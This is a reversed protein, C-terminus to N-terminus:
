FELSQMDSPNYKELKNFQIQKVDLIVAEPLILSPNDPSFKYPTMWVFYDIGSDALVNVMNSDNWWLHPTGIFGDGEFKPRKETLCKVYPTSEDMVFFIVSFRPHNKKYKDIKNIHKKVVRSFTEIYFKYNHDEDSILNTYTNIYLNGSEAVKKIYPIKSILESTIQSEKQNYINIPNGKQDLFTHDDVRMVDMMAKYKSSYFDPPLDSKSSSDTWNKWENKNYIINFLNVNKKSNPLLLVREVSLEQFDNIINIEKNLRNM